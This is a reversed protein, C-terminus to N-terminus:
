GRGRTPNATACRPAQSCRGLRSLRRPAVWGGSNCCNSYIEQFGLLQELTENFAEYSKPQFAVFRLFPVSGEDADLGKM